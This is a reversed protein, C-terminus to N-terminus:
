RSSWIHIIERVCMHVCVCEGKNVRHTDTVCVHMCTGVCESVQDSM